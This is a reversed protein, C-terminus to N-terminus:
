LVLSEFYTFGFGFMWLICAPTKSIKYTSNKYHKISLPPSDVSNAMGDADNPSMITSGCLEFKLTIEVFQQTDSYKPFKRYNYIIIIIVIILQTLLM